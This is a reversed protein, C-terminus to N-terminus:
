SVDTARHKKGGRLRVTVLPLPDKTKRSLSFTNDFKPDNEIADNYQNKIKNINDTM